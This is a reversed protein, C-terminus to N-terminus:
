YFSFICSVVHHETNVHIYDEKIRGFKSDTQYDDFDKTLQSFKTKLSPPPAPSDLILAAIDKTKVPSQLRADDM